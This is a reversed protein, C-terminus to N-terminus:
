ARRRRRLTAAVLGVGALMLAMNGPEPVASLNRVSFGTVRFSGDWANNGTESLFSGTASVGDAALDVPQYFSVGGNPDSFLFRSTAANSAQRIDFLMYTRDNGLGWNRADLSVRDLGNAGGRDVEFVFFQASPATAFAISSGGSFAASGALVVPTGPDVADFIDYTAGDTHSHTYGPYPSLTLSATFTEGAAPAGQGFAYTSTLVGTFDIETTAVAARAQVAVLAAAAFALRLTTRIM